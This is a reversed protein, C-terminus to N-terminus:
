FGDTMGRIVGAKKLAKKLADTHVSVVATARYEKNVKTMQTIGGVMTAFQSYDGSSAFFASFFDAFEQEAEVPALAKQKSYGTSETEYVGKFIIGHVAAKCILDNTINKAKGEYVSVKVLTTGETGVGAPSIDYRLGDGDKAVTAIPLLLSLFCVLWKMPNQIRANLM